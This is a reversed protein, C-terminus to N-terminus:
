TDMKVIGLRFYHKIQEHQHTHTFIPRHKRKFLENLKLTSKM